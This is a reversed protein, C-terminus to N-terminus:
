RVGSDKCDLKLGESGHKLFRVLVNSAALIKDLSEFTAM